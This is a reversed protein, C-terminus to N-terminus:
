SGGACMPWAEDDLDTSDIVGRGCAVLSSVIVRAMRRHISSM